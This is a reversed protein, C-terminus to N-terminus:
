HSMPNLPQIIELDKRGEGEQETGQFRSEM